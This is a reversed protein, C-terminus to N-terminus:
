NLACSQYFPVFNIIFHMCKSNVWQNISQNLSIPKLVPLEKSRMLHSLHVWKFCKFKNLHKRKWANTIAIGWSVDLSSSTSIDYKRYTGLVEFNYNAYDSSIRFHAWGRIRRGYAYNFTEFGNIFFCVNQFRICKNIELKFMIRM